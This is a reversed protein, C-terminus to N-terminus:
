AMHVQCVGFRGCTGAGGKLYRNRSIKSLNALTGAPSKPYKPGNITNYKAMIFGINAAPVQAGMTVMNKRTVMYTNVLKVLRRKGRDFVLEGLIPRGWEIIIVEPRMLPAFM